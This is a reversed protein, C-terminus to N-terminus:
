IDHMTIMTTTYFEGEVVVAAAASGISTSTSPSPAKIGAQSEL